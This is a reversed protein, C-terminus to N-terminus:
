ITGSKGNLAFFDAEADKKEDRMEMRYRSARRLISEALFSSEIGKKFHLEVIWSTRDSDTVVLRLQETSLLSYKRQYQITRLWEYRVHGVLVQKRKLTRDKGVHLIVRSDTVYVDMGTDMSYASPTFAAASEKKERLYYMHATVVNDLGRDWKEPVPRGREDTAVYMFPNQDTGKNSVVIPSYRM